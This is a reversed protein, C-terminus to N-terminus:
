PEVSHQTPWIKKQQQATPINLTFQQSSQTLLIINPTIQHETHLPCILKFIPYRRTSHEKPSVKHPFGYLTGRLPQSCGMNWKIGNNLIFNLSPQTQSIRFQSTTVSSVYAFIQRQPLPETGSLLALVTQSTCYLKHILM